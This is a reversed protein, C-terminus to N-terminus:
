QMRIWLSSRVLGAIVFVGLFMLALGSAKVFITRM